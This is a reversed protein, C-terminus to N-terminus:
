PLIIKSKPAGGELTVPPHETGLIRLIIPARQKIRQLEEPTPECASSMCPTGHLDLHTKKVLTDRIHLDELGPGGLIRTAGPIVSHKM